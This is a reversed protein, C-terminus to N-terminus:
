AETEDRDPDADEGAGLDPGRGAAAPPEAGSDWLARGASSVWIRNALAVTDREEAAVALLDMEEVVVTLLERAALESRRRGDRARELSQQARMLGGLDGHKQQERVLTEAAQCAATASSVGLETVHQVRLLEETWAACVVEEAEAVAQDRASGRLARRYEDVAAASDGRIEGV